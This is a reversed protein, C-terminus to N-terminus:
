KLEHFIKNIFHILGNLNGIIENEFPYSEFSSWGLKKISIALELIQDLTDRCQQYEHSQLTGREIKLDIIEAKAELTDIARVLIDLYRNPIYEKDATIVGGEDEDEDTDRQWSEPDPNKYEESLYNLYERLLTILTEYMESWRDLSHEM